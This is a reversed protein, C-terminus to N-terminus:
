AAMRSEFLSDVPESQEVMGTIQEGTFLYVTVYSRENETRHQDVCLVLADDIRRKGEPTQILM